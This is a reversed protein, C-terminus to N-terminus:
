IFFWNEMIVKVKELTSYLSLQWKEDFGEFVLQDFISFIYTTFQGAL